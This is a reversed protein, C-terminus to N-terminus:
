RLLRGASMGGDLALITGTVNPASLLYAIAAAAEEPEGLRGLPHVGLSAELARPNGTINAALPTRTLGPAIANIRINAGAYTMAAARVLGELGSKATAIAEHNPLGTGAAVSSCVVMAGRKAQTMPALAAKMLLFPSLTNLRFTNLMDDESLRALPKLVISGAAHVIFDLKGYTSLATQVAQEPTASLTADGTVAAAGLESALAGLREAGRAVLVLRAGERHLSRATASGIGGSAGVIIGVQDSFRM